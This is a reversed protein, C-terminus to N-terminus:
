IKSHSKAQIPIEMLLIRENTIKLKFLGQPHTQNNLKKYYIHTHTALPPLPYLMVVGVYHLSRVASMKHVEPSM